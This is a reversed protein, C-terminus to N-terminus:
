CQAVLECCKSCDTEGDWKGLDRGMQDLMILVHTEKTPSAILLSIRDGRALAGDVVVCLPAVLRLM